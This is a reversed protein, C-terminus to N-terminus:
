RTEADSCGTPGGHTPITEIISTAAARVSATRDRRRENVALRTTVPDAPLASHETAACWDRFLAWTPSGSLDRGARDSADEATGGEASM